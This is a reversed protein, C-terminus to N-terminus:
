QHVTETARLRDRAEDALPLELDDMTDLARQWDERAGSVDGLAARSDGRWLMCDATNARDGIGVFLTIARTLYEIAQEHEGTSQRLKGLGTWSYGVGVQDDIRGFLAMSEEILGIAVCTNGAKTECWGIGELATAQGKFNGMERFLELADRYHRMSAEVQGMARRIAGFNVCVYAHELRYGLQHFLACTSTLHEIAQENHRLFHYAGALSRHTRAQASVDREERATQLATRMLAAWDHYAGSLQFFQQQRLALEWAYDRLGTTTAAHKVASTLVQREETFWTMAAAQDACDEPTVGARPPPPETPLYLPHLRLQARQASILYHDFLRGLAQRREEDGDLQASLEAAYVRVLDHMEYRGPYHEVLLRASTLEALLQRVERRRVGLLSAAANRSIDPGAHVSLLRFLRGASQSLLRYSWSFVARLDAAVDDDASFADLRTRADRLEGAIEALPMNPHITARAAVIAMALPLGACWNIIEDLAAGEHAFRHPGLRRTLVERSEDISFQDLTLTRAAHTTILGSLQNRSTIIVLAGATAPLLPRVQAVDRANDLMILIRRGNLLSRFLGAQAEVSDPIRQASVGLADLFGRLAKSPGLVAGSPDFGRLDVYLQGDPYQEALRHAWHVAFSTKGIGAIGDITIIPMTTRAREPDLLATLRALEARRGTFMPLDPPLQAPLIVPSAVSPPAAQAETPPTAVAASAATPQGVQQRLVRQHAARLEAGPGIGLEDSLRASVARFASLAEAQYGSGALTLMLRAQLPEDLPNLAAVERLAALVKRSRGVSLAADAAELAVTIRERDIETFTTQASGSVDIGALCPGRWLSLAAVFAEVAADAQDKAALGRATHVRERFELLDLSNADVNLRYSGVQRILWRGAHRTPLHPELQRRLTGIYRHVVNAASTPPDTPWLLEILESMSVPAGARVLLLALIARQQPPGGAVEEGGRWVRVPGLVAFRIPEDVPDPSAM